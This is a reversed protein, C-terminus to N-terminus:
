DDDRPLRAQERDAVQLRGLLHQLEEPLDSSDNYVTPPVCSPLPPWLRM